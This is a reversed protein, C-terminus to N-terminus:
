EKPLCELCHGVELATATGFTCVKFIQDRQNISFLLDMWSTIGRV